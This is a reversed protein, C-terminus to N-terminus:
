KSVPSLPHKLYSQIILAYFSANGTDKDQLDKLLARKGAEEYAALESKRRDPTKLFIGSFLFKKHMEISAQGGLSYVDFTTHAQDFPRLLTAITKPTYQRIGHFPYLHMTKAAPFLHVQITPQKRAEIFENLQEFFTVDEPIHELASQSIIFNTEESFFPRIDKGQFRHFRYFGPRETQLTKWNALEEVDIGTYSALRQGSHQDLFPGYNGNGCGIDFSHIQGNLHEHIEQWPLDMWFLNCLKRSPSDHPKLAPFLHNPSSLTFPQVHFPQKIWPKPCHNNLTNLGLYLLKAPHSLGRYPDLTHGSSSQKTFIPM